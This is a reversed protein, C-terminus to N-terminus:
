KSPTKLKENEKELEKVRQELQSLKNTIEIGTRIYIEDKYPMFPEYLKHYARGIAGTFLHTKPRITGCELIQSMSIGPYPDIYFIKTIGLQYAKKACLECPSATTFLIGNKLSQGGYKSIQMMANEEAHLSKTHVQNKGETISNQIDKFCFSCNHGQINRKNIGDFKKKFEPFFIDETNKEYRSFAISDAERSEKDLLEEANRLLCPVQGEPINNWGISKISFSSDTIVAGVQRSICGSNYKATYAIQMCREQTSPTVIGPQLMLSYFIVVQQNFDFPYVSKDDIFSIHLDSKEICKQVNQKYFDTKKNKDGYEIRDIKKIDEIISPYKKLLQNGKIEENPNIALTYYASYREKFFMIELSNRLSDIIVRCPENKKSRRKGKIIAKILEAIKYIGEHNPDLDCHYCGGKRLNNCFNHLILIRNIDNEIKLAFQFSDHFKNFEDSIFFRYLEKEQKPFNIFDTEEKLKTLEQLEKKLSNSITFRESFEVLTTEILGEVEELKDQYAILSLVKCYNIVFFSGWNESLYNYSIRYKRENNDANASRNPTPFGCQVFEKNSMLNAFTSCGSGTRGTLGIVIFDQRLKYLHKLNFTNIAM